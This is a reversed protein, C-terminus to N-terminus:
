SKQMHMFIWGTLLLAALTAALMLQPAAASQGLGEALRALPLFIDTGNAPQM